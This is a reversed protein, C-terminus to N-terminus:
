MKLLKLTVQDGALLKNPSKIEFLREHGALINEGIFGELSKDSLIMSKGKSTVSLRYGNLVEHVSGKNRVKFKIKKNKDIKVSTSILDVKTDIKKPLIYYAAIYKLLIKINKKTNKKNMGIPLQEAILRYAEEKIPTRSGLYTVSVAKKDKPKLILQDPFIIFTDEVEPHTELGHLDMVRKAISVQIAIPEKSENQIYFISKKEGKSPKLSQSMPTLRFAYSSVQMGILTFLTILTNRTFKSYNM